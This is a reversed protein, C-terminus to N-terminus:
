QSTHFAYTIQKIDGSSYQLICRRKEYFINDFYNDFKAM